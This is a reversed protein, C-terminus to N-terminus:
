EPKGTALQEPAALPLLPAIRPLRRGEVDIAAEGYRALPLRVAAGTGLRYIANTTGDSAVPEVPLGAWRPHQSAILRRVLAADVAPQDAHLRRAPLPAAGSPPRRPLRGSTADEGREDESTEGM